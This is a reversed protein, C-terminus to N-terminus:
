CVQDDRRSARLRPLSPYCRRIPRCNPKGSVHSRRVHIVRYAFLQLLALSPQYTYVQTSTLHSFDLSFFRRGMPCDRSAPLSTLISAYSIDLVLLESRGPRNYVQQVTYSSKFDQQWTKIFCTVSSSGRLRLLACVLSKGLHLESSQV